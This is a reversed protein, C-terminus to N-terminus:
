SKLVDLCQVGQLQIYLIGDTGPAVSPTIYFRVTSNPGFADGEPGLIGDSDSRYLMDSPLARDQRDREARGDSYEYFFDLTDDVASGAVEQSGAITPNGSSIPRFRGANAGTEPVWTMHLRDLFFWGEESINAAGTARDTAGSTLSVQIQYVFPITKAANLETYRRFSLQRGELADIRSLVQRPDGFAKVVNGLKRLGVATDEQRNRLQVLFQRTQEDM